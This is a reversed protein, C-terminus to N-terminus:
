ALPLPDGDHSSTVFGARLFARRGPPALLRHIYAEAEDPNGERVVAVAYEARGLAGIGGLEVV